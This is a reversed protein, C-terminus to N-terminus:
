CGNRGGRYGGAIATLAVADLAVDDFEDDTDSVRAWAAGFGLAKCCM